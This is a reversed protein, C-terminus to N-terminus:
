DVEYGSPPVILTDLEQIAERREDSVGLSHGSFIMNDM